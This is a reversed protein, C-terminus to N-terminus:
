IPAPPLMARALDPHEQLVRLKSDKTGAVPRAGPTGGGVGEIGAALPNIEFLRQLSDKFPTVRPSFIDKGPIPCGAAAHDARPSLGKIPLLTGTAASLVGLKLLNRRNLDSRVLERQVDMTQKVLKIDINKM